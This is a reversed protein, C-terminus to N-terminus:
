LRSASLRNLIRVRPSVQDHPDLLFTYVTERFPPLAAESCGQACLWCEPMKLRSRQVYTTENGLSVPLCLSLSHPHPTSSLPGESCLVSITYVLRYASWLGAKGSWKRKCSFSMRWRGACSEKPPSVHHKTSILRIDERPLFTAKSGRIAGTSILTQTDKDHVCLHKASGQRRNRSQNM